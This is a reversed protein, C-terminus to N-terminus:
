WEEDADIFPPPLVPDVPLRARVSSYLHPQISVVGAGLEIIQKAALAEADHRQRLGLDEIMTQIERRARARTPPATGAEENAEYSARFHAIAGALRSREVEFRALLATKQVAFTPRLKAMRTHAERFNVLNELEATAISPGAVLTSNPLASPRNKRRKQRKAPPESDSEPEYEGDEDDDANGDDDDDDDDSDLDRESVARKRDKKTTTTTKKKKKKTSKVKKTKKKPTRAKRVPSSRVEAAAAAAKAAAAAEAAEVAAAAEAAMQNAIEEAAAAAALAEEERAARAKAERAARRRKAAAEREQEEQM